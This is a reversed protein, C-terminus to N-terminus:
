KVKVTRVPSAPKELPIIFYVGPSVGEGIRDGRCSGVRRGSVDYLGFRDTERGRVTTFSTFPNPHIKVELNQERVEAKGEIGVNVYEYAGIDIVGQTPRPERACPHVYQYLPWLTSDPPTGANICASTGQLHYDYLSRNVLGPDTGVVSNLLSDDGTHGVPVWNNLGSHRGGSTIRTGGYFVNNVLVARTGTQLALFSGFPSRDNVLTNNVAQLVTDYGASIGERGYSIITSNSTSAAQHILNGILYSAGANPLDVEYSASGTEDTLRNYLLYNNKARSKVLHGVNCHHSYCHQLIFRRINGIYMNHSYGDGYGNYGFETYEILINSTSDAGTLIGDENDHFYCYRVTLGPGEQRIGAGNQDPCSADSFEVNEVFTNAGKIVWIAKGEELARGTADLHPRGGAGKLLLNNARWACVDTYTAPDIEVTDGNGVLTSVDRPRTYTRSPGVQWLRAEAWTAIVIILIPLFVLRRSSFPKPHIPTICHSRM